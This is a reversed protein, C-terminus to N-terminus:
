RRAPITVGLQILTSEDYIPTSELNRILRHTHCLTYEIFMDPSLQSLGSTVCDICILHKIRGQDDPATQM